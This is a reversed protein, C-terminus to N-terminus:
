YPVAARHRIGGTVTLGQARLPEDLCRFGAAEVATRLDRLKVKSDSFAMGFDGGGAGSPKYVVNHEQALAALKLHVPAYIGIQAEDDLRRLAQAFASIAELVAPVDDARWANLVRGSATSLRALQASAEVPRQAQLHRLRGLMAPTSASVGTWIPLTHLMRPWVLPSIRPVTNAASFEVGIVGGALTTAVDMGSGHGGQLRRHAEWCVAMLSARDTSEAGIFRLLAGVLAVTVAASSGLGLKTREGTATTAQFAASSLEIRCAPMDGARKLLQLAYLIETVAELPLGLSGPSAGEWRPPAGSIWRFPHESGVDPLALVNGGRPQLSIRCLAPVEVAVAIGPGGGLVGYEGAIVLKGPARAEILQPNPM